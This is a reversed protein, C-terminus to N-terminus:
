RLAHHGVVREIGVFGWHPFGIGLAVRLEMGHEPKVADEVLPLPMPLDQFGFAIVDCRSPEPLVAESTRRKM